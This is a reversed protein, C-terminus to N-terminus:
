TAASHAFQIEVCMDTNVFQSPLKITLTVYLWALGDDSLGNLVDKSDRLVADGDVVIPVSSTSFEMLTTPFFGQSVVRTSYRSGSM